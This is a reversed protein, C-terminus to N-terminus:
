TTFTFIFIEGSQPNVAIWGNPRGTLTEPAYFHLQTFDDEKVWWEHPQSPSQYAPVSDLETLFDEWIPIEEPAVQIMIFTRYDAPGLSDDGIKEEVFNADLIPTPPTYFKTLMASINSVRQAQTGTAEYFSVQPARERSCAAMLSLTCISIAILIFRVTHM